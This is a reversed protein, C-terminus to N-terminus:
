LSCYARKAGYLKHLPLYYSYIAQMYMVQCTFAIQGAAAPHTWAKSREKIM